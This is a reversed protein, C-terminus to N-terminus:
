TVKMYTICKIQIIFFFMNITVDVKMEMIAKQFDSTGNINLKNLVSYILGRFALM